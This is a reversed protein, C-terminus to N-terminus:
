QEIIPIFYKKIIYKWQQELLTNRITGSNLETRIKRISSLSKAFDDANDKILIGNIENIILRNSFTDTAICYLGSLIYEYTKTPPQHEYYDTIPIYSIGINCKDLFPKLKSYPLKGHLHIYNNLMHNKIYENIMYFEDGDGIIDYTISFGDNNKIFEGVGIVTQLIDRNNLTGIYLLRLDDFKKDQYSIIDAGLPLIYTKINQSPAIQKRVGESIFSASKFLNVTKTIEANQIKRKEEEKFVSLTRIDIHMKKWSLVKRIISCKPFYIIYIFGQFFICKLISAIIFTLGRLLFPGKYPIYTVRINPINIKTNGKDFCLYEIQYQKNLHECYKISDTLTGFQERNIFLINKM